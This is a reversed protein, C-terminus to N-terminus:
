ADHTSNSIRQAAGVASSARVGHHVIRYLNCCDHVAAGQQNNGRAHVIFRQIM